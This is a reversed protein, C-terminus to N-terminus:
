QGPESYVFHAITFLSWKAFDVTGLPFALTTCLLRSYSDPIRWHLDFQHLRHHNAYEYTFPSRIFISSPSLSVFPYFYIRRAVPLSHFLSMADRFITRPCLIFRIEVSNAYPYRHHRLMHHRTQLTICVIHLIMYVSYKQFLFLSFM